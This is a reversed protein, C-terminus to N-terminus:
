NNGRVKPVSAIGYRKSAANNTGGDGDDFVFKVRIKEGEDAPAIMYTTGTGVDDGDIDWTFTGTPSPDVSVTLLNGVEFIGNITVIPRM